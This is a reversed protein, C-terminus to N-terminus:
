NLNDIFYTQHDSYKLLILKINKIVIKYLYINIEFKM